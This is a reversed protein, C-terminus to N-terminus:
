CVLGPRFDLKGISCTFVKKERGRAQWNSSKDLTWKEMDLLDRDILALGRSLNNPYRCGVPTPGGAGFYAKVAIALIGSSNIGILIRM